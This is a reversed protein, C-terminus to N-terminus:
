LAVPNDESLISSLEHAQKILAQHYIPALPAGQGGMVMDRSRFDNVVSITTLTALLAGDGLQWTWGLDPRHNITQGHFGIFAVQEAAIDNIKLLQQVALAHLRTIKDRLRNVKPDQDDKHDWQQVYDILQKIEVRLDDDYGMHYPKGISHCREGDTDLLAADIGDMSTGSMLGLALYQYRQGQM